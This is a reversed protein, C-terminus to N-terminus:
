GRELQTLVASAAGTGMHDSRHDHEVSGAEDCAYARVEKITKIWTSRFIKNRLRLKDSCGRHGGLALTASRPHKIGSGPDSFKKM